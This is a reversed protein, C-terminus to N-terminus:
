RGSLERRISPWHPLYAMRGINGDLSKEVLSREEVSESVPEEVQVTTIREGVSSSDVSTGYSVADVPCCPPSPAFDLKQDHLEGMGM